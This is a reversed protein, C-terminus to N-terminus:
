RCGESSGARSGTCRRSAACPAEFDADQHTPEEHWTVRINPLNSSLNVDDVRLGTIEALRCGTGELLRWIHRLETNCRDLVRERVATLVKPPFPLRKEDEAEDDLGPIDLKNFPNNCDKLEMETIAHNVIAKVINLERRVSSPTLSLSLMHDRVKKADERSIRDLCPYKGLAAKLRGSVREVRQTSKKVELPSGSIKEAVYLRQAEDFTPIPKSPMGNNLARVVLLDIPSVGVPHGTREDVSYESLVEDAALSRAESEGMAEADDLDVGEFQPDFGLERIRDQALRFLELRTPQRLLKRQTVVLKDYASNATNWNKAADRDSEGLPHTFWKKGLPGQLDSPLERRYRIGTGTRQLYKMTIDLRM